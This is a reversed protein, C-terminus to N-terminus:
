KSESNHYKYCDWCYATNKWVPKGCHICHNNISEYSGQHNSLLIKDSNHKVTKVSNFKEPIYNSKVIVNYLYLANSKDLNTINIIESVVKDQHQKNEILELINSLDYMKNDIICSYPNDLVSESNDLTEVVKNTKNSIKHKSVVDKHKNYFNKGYKLIVKRPIKLILNSRYDIYKIIINQTNIEHNFVKFIYDHCIIDFSFTQPNKYKVNYNFIIGYIYINSPGDHKIIKGYSNISSSPIFVHFGAQNMNSYYQVYFNKDNSSQKNSSKIIQSDDSNENYDKYTFINKRIKLQKKNAYKEIKKYSYDKVFYSGCLKCQLCKIPYRCFISSQILGNGCVPCKNNSIIYCKM